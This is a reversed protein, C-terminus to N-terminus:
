TITTSYKINVFPITWFVTQQQKIKNKWSLFKSFIFYVKFNEVSLELLGWYVMKIAFVVDYFNPFLLIDYKGFSGSNPNDEKGKFVYM